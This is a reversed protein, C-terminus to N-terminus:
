REREWGDKLLRVLRAKKVVELRKTAKSNKDLVGLAKLIARYGMRERGSEPLRLALIGMSNNGKKENKLM